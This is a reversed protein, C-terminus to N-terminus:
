RWRTGSAPSATPWRRAEGSGGPGAAGPRPVPCPRLSRAPASCRGFAAACAPRRGPRDWRCRRRAWRPIGCPPSRAAPATVTAADRGAKSVDRSGCTPGSPRTSVWILLGQRTPLPKAGKIRRTFLPTYDVVGSSQVQGPFNKIKDLKTPRLARYTSGDELHPQSSQSPTPGPDIM